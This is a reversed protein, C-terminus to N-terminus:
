SANNMTKWVLNNAITAIEIAKKSPKVCTGELLM